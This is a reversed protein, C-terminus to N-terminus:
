RRGKRKKEEKKTLEEEEEEDEGDEESNIKNSRQQSSSFFVIYYLSAFQSIVSFMVKSRNSLFYQLVSPRNFSPALYQRVDPLITRGIILM